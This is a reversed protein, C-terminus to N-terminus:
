PDSAESRCFIQNPRTSVAGLPWTSCLGLTSTISMKDDQSLRHFKQYIQQTYELALVAQPAVLENIGLDHGRRQRIEQVDEVSAAM